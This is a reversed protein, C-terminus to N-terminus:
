SGRRLAAWLGLAMGVPIGWALAALALEVTAPFLSMFESMVSERTVLSRGLDGQLLDMLYRGYQVYLPQDLGLRAVLAAYAQPDLRREGVMIEIPDGPVLRILAFALVTVGFFTPVLLTLRQILFNLM